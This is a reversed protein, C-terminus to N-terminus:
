GADSFIQNLQDEQLQTNDVLDAATEAMRRTGYSPCIGRRKCSFAVRIDRACGDCTLHRLGNALIGCDLYAAFEDKVFQPLSAVRVEVDIAFSQYRQRVLRYLPTQEPRRHQYHPQNAVAERM